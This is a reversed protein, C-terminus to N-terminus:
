RMGRHIWRGFENQDVTKVARSRRRNGSSQGRVRLDFQQHLREITTRQSLFHICDERRFLDIFSVDTKELRKHFSLQLRGVNTRLPEVLVRGGLLDNGAMQMHDFRGNVM